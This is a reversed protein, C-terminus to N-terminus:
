SIDGSAWLLTLPAECIIIARGDVGRVKERIKFLDLEKCSKKDYTGSANGEGPKKLLFIDSTVLNSNVSPAMRVKSSQRVFLDNSLETPGLLNNSIDETNRRNYHPRRITIDLTNEQEHQIIISNVIIMIM